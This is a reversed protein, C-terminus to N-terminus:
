VPLPTCTGGVSSLRNSADCEHICVCVVAVSGYCMFTPCTLIPASCAITEEQRVQVSPSVGHQVMESYMAHAAETEGRDCFGKIAANFHVANPAIGDDEMDAFLVVAEDRDECDYQLLPTYTRDERAVGRDVMLELLARGGEVDDARCCTRVAATYCKTCPTVGAVSEMNSFLALANRYSTASIHVAPVFMASDAALGGEEMERALDFVGQVALGLGRGVRAGRGLM